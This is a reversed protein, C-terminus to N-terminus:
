FQDGVGGVPGGGLEKEIDKLGKEVAWRLIATRSPRGFAAMEHGDREMRQALSSARVAQEHYVKTQTEHDVNSRRM